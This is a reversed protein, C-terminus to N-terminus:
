NVYMVGGGGGGYIKAGTENQRKEVAGALQKGDLYVNAEVARNVKALAAEVARQIVNGNVANSTNATAAAAQKIYNQEARASATSLGETRAYATFPNLTPATQSPLPASWVSSIDSMVGDWDTVIRGSLIAAMVKYGTTGVRSLVEAADRASDVLWLVKETAWDFFPGLFSNRIPQIISDDFWRGLPDFLAKIPEIVRRSFWDAADQWPKEFADLTNTSGTTIDEWVGSFFKGIPDIVHEKFWGGPDTWLQKIGNWCDGAVKGIDGFIDGFFMKLEEWNERIWEIIVSLDGILAGVLAGVLTGLGPAVLTGISAGLITAGSTTLWVSGENIGDTFLQILGAIFDIGGAVIGGIAGGVVASGLLSGIIAGAGTIETSSLLSEALTEATLEKEVEIKKISSIKLIVGEAFLVLGAALKLSSPFSLGALNSIASAIKWAAIAAGIAIVLKLIEGFKTKMLDAWSDIEGTIGLWEKMKETIENVKTQVADGLFDYTPLEFDFMSGIDSGNDKNNKNERIINLKDIGITAKQLKKAAKTADDLDDTLNEVGSSNVSSYDIEPMEFGVLDAIIHAIEKLVKVAAIAYPLVKNLLPIFINGIERGLQNLQSSLIRLQNAPAELTRAMDGQVETVQKMIAYYRLQAKEAQTMSNFTKDIGLSLAIAELKAKSLDYGLRRLPELEGALGSQLKQMSDEFSINYFSSLDYGLQTLNQSMTFAREEVVGFGKALTMFVGQNRAWEGPDIGIVENVTEAYKMAEDAYKGMSVNFLNINEIYSNSQNIFRFISQGSKLVAAEVTKLKAYLNIFGKSAVDTSSGINKLKKSTKDSSTGLNNLGTSVSSLGLGGSTTKKLKELTAILTDIGDSASKSNSKISLFLSDIQTGDSM